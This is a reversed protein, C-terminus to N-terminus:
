GELTSKLVDDLIQLVDELTEERPDVWLRKLQDWFTTQFEGGVADDLDPVVMEVQAMADVVAKDAPSYAEAPVDLNTALFGGQKVMIEQAKPGALYQLLQKAEDPHETFVPIVAWDGGAVMGRTEPFPFFGLDNIDKVQPMTTMWNGMFYIGYKGAWLKDIQSTWEDPESFYGAALLSRLDEFADRVPSETFKAEGEILKLQWEPGARAIIFAEATDSLPWGVGDGSAIPAEIGPIGKLTELLTLFEEWTTPPTLGHAEFFSKRYWFGPKSWMKFPAAYIKDGVKVLEIYSPPFKTTDILGSVDMLFGAEGWERITAPWPLLIVDAISKGAKFQAPFARLEEETLHIHKVSIGTEQTFAELCKLFNEEEKGGWLSAVVLEVPPAETPPPTTPAPTTTPPPAPAAAKGIYYGVVGGLILCVIAIVAYAKAEPM